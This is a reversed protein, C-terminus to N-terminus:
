QCSTNPLIERFIQERHCRSNNDTGSPAYINAFTTQFIDFTIIRGETDINVNKTELTNKVLVATGYENSANNYIYSYYKRIHECNDFTNLNFNTEQLFVIDVNHENIFHQIQLQKAFTLRTPGRCNITALKINEM